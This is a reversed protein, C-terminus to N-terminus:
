IIYKQLKMMCTYLEYISVSASVCECEEEGGLM